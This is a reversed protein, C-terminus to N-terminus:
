PTNGQCRTWKMYSKSILLHIRQLHVSTALSRKWYCMDNLLKKVQLRQLVTLHPQSFISDMIERNNSICTLKEKWNIRISWLIDPHRTNRVQRVAQHQLDEQTEGMRRHQLGPQRTALPESHRSVLEQPPLQEIAVVTDRTLYRAVWTSCGPLICWIPMWVFHTRWKPKNTMSAMKITLVLM